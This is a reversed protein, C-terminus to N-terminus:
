ASRERHGRDSPKHSNEVGKDIPVDEKKLAKVQELARSLEASLHNNFAELTSITKAQSDIINKQMQIRELLAANDGLPPGEGGKLNGLLNGKLNGKKKNPSYDDNTILNGNRLDSFLLHGLNIGFKLVILELTEFKPETTGNEYNAYTSRKLHLLTAMQEQSYNYENRIFLLNDSFFNAM